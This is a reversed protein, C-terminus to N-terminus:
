FSVTKIERPDKTNEKVNVKKLICFTKNRM